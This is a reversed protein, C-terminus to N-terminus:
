SLPHLVDAAELDPEGLDVLPELVAIDEISFGEITVGEEEEIAVDEVSVANAAAPPADNLAAGGAAPEEPAVEM